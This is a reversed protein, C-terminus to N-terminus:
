YADEGAWYGISGKQEDDSSVNDRSLITNSRKYGTCHKIFRVPIDGLGVM